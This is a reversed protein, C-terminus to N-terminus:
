QKKLNEVKITNPWLIIINVRDKNIQTKKKTKKLRSLTPKM